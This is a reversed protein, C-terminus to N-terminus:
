SGHYVLVGLSEEKHELWVVVVMLAPAGAMSATCLLEPLKGRREVLLIKEKETEVGPIEKNTKM